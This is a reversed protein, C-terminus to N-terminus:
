QSVEDQRAEDSPYLQQTSAAPSSEQIPQRDLRVEVVDGPLLDSTDSAAIKEQRGDVRRTISFSIKRESSPGSAAASALTDLLLKQAADRQLKLRELKAQEQQLESAVETQRQDDLGELSRTAETINQRARMIATVQDLREARYSAVLRELDSKRSAVAIGKEVLATVGALEKEASAIGVDASKIKEELVDIERQLLSRLETLSKKQRDLANARASFIVQEQSYIEAAESRERKGSAPPPFRIEKAQSSEAALRALRATTRLIDKDATQLDAVLKVEEQPRSQRSERFQGGGLAVAQLVTMGTRFRYEGPRTVDGVVYIPPYELVKLTIDPPNILGIKKQLRKSIEAALQRSDQTGVEIPGIVPLQITGDQSIVFEGGLAAWEQFESRTPVWQVVTLRLRTEPALPAGDSRAPGAIGLAAVAAASLLVLRVRHAKQPLNM